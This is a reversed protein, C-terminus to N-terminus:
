KAGFRVVKGDETAVFLSGNAVAMGDWVPLSDLKIEQGPSGDKVSVGVLTGGEGGALAADQQTLLSDVSADKEMIREFTYEEDM